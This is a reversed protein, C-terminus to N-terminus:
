PNVMADLREALEDDLTIAVVAKKTRPTIKLEINTVLDAVHDLKLARIAERKFKAKLQDSM